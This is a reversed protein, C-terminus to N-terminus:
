KWHLITANKGKCQGDVTWCLKHKDTAAPVNQKRELQTWFCCCNGNITARTHRETLSHFLHWGTSHSQQYSHTNIAAGHIQVYFLIVARYALPVVSHLQKAACVLAWLLRCISIHCNYFHWWKLHHFQKFLACCVLAVAGFSILCMSLLLIPIRKTQATCM